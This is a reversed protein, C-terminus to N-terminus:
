VEVITKAYSARGLEVLEVTIVCSRRAQQMWLAIANLVSQTLQQKQQETKGQHIRCTVHIFGSSALGLKYDDVPHLRVKINELNFLGTSEVAVFITDLLGNAKLPDVLDLSHEVIIHPM